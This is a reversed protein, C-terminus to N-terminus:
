LSINRKEVHQELESLSKNQRDAFKQISICLVISAATWAVASRNIAGQYIICIEAWEANKCWIHVTEKVFCKDGYVPQM